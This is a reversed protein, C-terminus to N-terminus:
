KNASSQGVGGCRKRTRGVQCCARSEATTPKPLVPGGERPREGFHRVKKLGKIARSIKLSNIARSSRGRRKQPPQAPCFCQRNDGSCVGCKNICHFISHDGGCITCKLLRQSM